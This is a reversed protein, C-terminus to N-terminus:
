GDLEGGELNLIKKIEERVQRGKRDGNLVKSLYTKDCNIGRAEVQSALWNQTKDIEILRKRVTKGFDTM